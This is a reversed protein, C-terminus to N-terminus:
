ILRRIQMVALVVSFLLLFFVVFNFDKGLLFEFGYTFVPVFSLCIMTILPHARQMGIQLFYMPLIIGVLTLVVHEIKFLALPTESTFLFLFLAAIWTLHFRYGLITMAPLENSISKKSGFAILTAGLAAIVSLSIGLLDKFSLVWSKEILLIFLSCLFLVLMMFFSKVSVKHTSLVFGVVVGWLPGSAAEILSSISAPIFYLSLYFCLFAIATSINLKILDFIHSKKLTAGKFKGLVIYFISTLSFGQAVFFLIFENSGGSLVSYSLSQFIVSLVIFIIGNEIM